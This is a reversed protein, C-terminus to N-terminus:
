YGVAPPLEAEPTLSHNAALLGRMRSAGMPRAFLYGQFKECGIARLLEFQEQTEVGEAIVDLGLHRALEVIGGIMRSMRSNSHIERIFTQDIKMTSIPLRSLRELTSYGTGFDDISFCVGAEALMTMQALMASTDRMLITETIEMHIASPPLQHEEFVRLAFEAFGPSVLQMCSVNVALTVDHLGLSRWEALSSCAMLLVREGIPFILKSEEAVPIYGAPGIKQLVPEHSRLLAEVEIVKGELDFIPQYDLFFLDHALAKRLATEVPSADPVALLQRDLESAAQHWGGSVATGADINADKRTRDLGLFKWMLSATNM